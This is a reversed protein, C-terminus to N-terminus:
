VTSNRIVRLAANQPKPDATLPRPKLAPLISPSNSDLRPTISSLRTYSIKSHKKKLSYSSSNPNSMLSLMSNRKIDNSSDALKINGSDDSTQYIPQVLAISREIQEIPPLSFLQLGEDEQVFVLGCRNGSADAYNSCSFVTYLIDGAFKEIGLPVCQHARLIHKIKFQRVFDRVATVGYTVGNGRQSRLFDKTDNSPDSWLLDCCVNGDYSEIPRKILKLQRFSSVQPSIGGHVAFIEKGVKAALPMWQFCENLAKYAKLSNNYLEECEAKFGYTENVREFEHNGRILYVLNPYKVNLALLLTIVEISYQGRDVYDGLFLFRSKPPPGSLVLVRILDFINGHLDGVVYVPKEVTILTEMGMYTRKARNALEVVTKEDFTPIPVTVGVETIREPPLNLLESFASLVKETNGQVQGSM